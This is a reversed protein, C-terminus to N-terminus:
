KVVKQKNFDIFYLAHRLSDRAHRMDEIYLGLMMLRADTYFKKAQVALQLYYPIGRKNALYKLVGIVQSTFM